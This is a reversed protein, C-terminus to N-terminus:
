HSSPATRRGRRLEATRERVVRRRLARATIAARRSGAGPYDPEALPAVRSAAIIIVQVVAFLALAAASFVFFPTPYDAQAPDLFFY